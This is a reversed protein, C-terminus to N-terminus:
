NLPRPRGCPRAEQCPALSPSARRGRCPRPPVARRPRPSAAPAPARSPPRRPSGPARARPCHGRRPGPLARSSPGPALPLTSPASCGALRGSPVPQELRSTGGWARGQLFRDGEWVTHPSSGRGGPAEAEPVRPVAPRHASPAPHAPIPQLGPGRREATLRQPPGEGMHPRARRDGGAEHPGCTPVGWLTGYPQM